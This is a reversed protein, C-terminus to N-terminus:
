KVVVSATYEGYLWCTESGLLVPATVEKKDSSTIKSMDIALVANDFTLEGIDTEPGIVTIQEFNITYSEPEVNDQINIFEIQVPVDMTVSKFSGVNVTITFEKTGDTVIGGTLEEASVTFTNKGVNLASFDITTIEFEDMGELKNEPIGFEATEPSVTVEFPVADIYQSPKNSFAVGAKLTVKKYVPITIHAINSKRNFTINQLTSLDRTVAIIEADITTNQTLPETIEGRAIIKEIKNIETEPGSVKVVDSETFIYDDAYYGDPTIDCSHEVEPEITFEKEKPYDFYVEIEYTSVSDITFSSRGIAEADLTLSYTGESNVYETGATVSIEDAIDDSDVIYKKGTITVNVTFNSEGYPELGLKKQVTSYDITVPVNRVTVTTEPALEASVVLWIIVAALVSIVFVFKNNYFLASFRKNKM